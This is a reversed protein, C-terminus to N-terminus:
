NCSSCRILTAGWFPKHYTHSCKVVDPPVIRRKTNSCNKMGSGRSLNLLLQLVADQGGKSLDGALAASWNNVTANRIAGIGFANHQADQPLNFYFRVFKGKFCATVRTRYVLECKGRGAWSHVAVFRAEVRCGPLAIMDKISKVEAAATMDCGYCGQKHMCDEKYKLLFPRKPGELKYPMSQNKREKFCKGCVFIWVFSQTKFNLLRERILADNLLCVHCKSFFCAITELRTGRLMGAYQDCFSNFPVRAAKLMNLFVGNGCVSTMRLLKAIELSGTEFAHALLVTFLVYEFEKFDNFFQYTRYLYGFRATPRVTFARSIPTTKRCQAQRHMGDYEYDPADGM